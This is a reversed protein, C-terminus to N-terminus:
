IDNVRMGDNYLKRIESVKQETLKTVRKNRSQEKITSWKCNEPCYDGNVNIRDISKGEPRDGMDNKFNEFIHWRDCVKIGRGGYNHFGIEKERYCRMMMGKWSVFVGTKVHYKNWNPNKSVTVDGHRM